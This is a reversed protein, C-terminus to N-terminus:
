GWPKSNWVKCNWVIAIPALNTIISPNQRKSYYTKTKMYGSNSINDVLRQIARQEVKKKRERENKGETSYFNYHM